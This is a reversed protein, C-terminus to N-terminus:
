YGSYFSRVLSKQFQFGQFFVMTTYFVSILKSYNSIILQSEFRRSSVTTKISGTFATVLLKKKFSTIKSQDGPEASFM